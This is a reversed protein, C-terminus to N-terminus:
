KSLQGRVAGAPFEATHLNVYFAEPSQRLESALARSVTACGSTVGPQGTEFFPVVVPGNKGEAGRHIHARTVPAIGTVDLDFCVLGEGSNVTLGATGTGEPDGVGTRGDNTVEQAGSLAAFLPRGGDQAGVPPALAVVAGATATLCVSALLARAPFLSM